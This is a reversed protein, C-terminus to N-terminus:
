PYPRRSAPRSASFAGRPVACPPKVAPPHSDPSSSPLEALSKLRPADVLSHPRCPCPGLRRRPAHTGALQATKGRTQDQAHSRPSRRRRRPRAAPAGCLLRARRGDLFRARLGATPQTSLRPPNVRPPTPSVLASPSCAHLTTCLQRQGSRRRLPSCPQPAPRVKAAKDSDRLHQVYDTIDQVIRRWDTILGAPCESTRCTVRCVTARSHQCMHESHWGRALQDAGHTGDSRGHGEADLAHVTLGATTQFPDCHAPLPCSPPLLPSRRACESVQWYQRCVQYTTGSRFRHRACPMSHALSVCSLRRDVELLLRQRVLREAVLKVSPFAGHAGYGHAIFVLAKSAHPAQSFLISLFDCQRKDSRVHPRM